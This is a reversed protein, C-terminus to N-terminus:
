RKELAPVSDELMKDVEFSKVTGPLDDMLGGTGPPNEEGDEGRTM